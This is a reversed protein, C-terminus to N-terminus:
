IARRAAKRHWGKARMPNSAACRLTARLLRTRVECGVCKTTCADRTRVRKMLRRGDEVVMELCSPRDTPTSAMSPRRREM